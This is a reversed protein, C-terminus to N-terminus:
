RLLEKLTYERGIELSSFFRSDSFPKFLTTFTFVTGFHLVIYRGEGEDAATVIIMDKEVEDYPAVVNRLWAKEIEDLLGKYVSWDYMMTDTFPISYNEDQEHGEPVESLYHIHTNYDKDLFVYHDEDGRRAKVGHIFMEHSIDAYSMGEDEPPEDEIIAMDHEQYETMEEEKEETIDFGLTLQGTVPEEENTEDKKDRTYIHKIAIGRRTLESEKDPNCTARAIDKVSVGLFKACEKVGKIKIRSDGTTIEYTWKGTSMRTDEKMTEYVAGASSVEKARAKRTPSFDM